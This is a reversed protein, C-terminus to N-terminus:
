VRGSMNNQRKSDLFVNIAKNIARYQLDVIKLASQLAAEKDIMEEYPLSDKKRKLERKRIGAYDRLTSLFTFINAIDALDNAACRMQEEDQINIRIEAKFNELFSLFEYPDKQLIELYTGYRAIYTSPHPKGEGSEAEQPEKKVAEDRQEM